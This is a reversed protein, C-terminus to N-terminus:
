HEQHSFPVRKMKSLREYRRKKQLEFLEKHTISPTTQKAASRNKKTIMIGSAKLRNNEILASELRKNKKNLVMINGNEDEMWHLYEDGQLRYIITEGNPQTFTRKGHFAPAALLLQSFFAIILLHKM